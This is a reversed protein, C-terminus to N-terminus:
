KKESGQKSLFRNKFDKGYESNASILNQEGSKMWELIEKATQLRIEKALKKMWPLIIKIMEKKTHIIIETVGNLTITTDGGSSYGGITSSSPITKRISIAM